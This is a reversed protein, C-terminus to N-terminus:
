FDIKTQAVLKGNVYLKNLKTSLNWVVTILHRKRSDLKHVDAEVDTRGCGIIVHFFTLKNNDDKLIYILGKSNTRNVLIHTINDDYEFLNNPIWFSIKGKQINIIKKSKMKM